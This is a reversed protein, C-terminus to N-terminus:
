CSCTSSASCIASRGKWRTSGSRTSLEGRLSTGMINKALRTIRQSFPVKKGLFLGRRSNEMLLVWVLLLIVSNQSSMSSVDQALGDYWIQTQVFHLVIFFANAALAVKNIPNLKVSYKKHNRQAYAIIGWFVVQHIAYFGWATIQGWQTQEALKWYYWRPGQDPLRPVDAIFQAGWWIVLTFVLSIIIGGILASRGTVTERSKATM